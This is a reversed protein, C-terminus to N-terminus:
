KHLRLAESLPPTAGRCSAVYSGVRNAFDATKELSYGNLHCHAVAASFADGCGVTDVVQVPYGPHEVVGETGVVLCGDKGLTVCVLKLRFELLISRCWDVRDGKGLGAQKLKQQEEDNLKAITSLKLQEAVLEQSWFDHRLNIDFLITNKASQLLSEVTKRSKEARQILTGFCVLDASAVAQHLRPEEELYDWAVDEVVTFSPTGDPAVQVPVTGTPKETDVQILGTALGNARLHKLLERGLLDDGVRSVVAAAHGLQGAHFAFNAPAGGPRRGDEFLDWLLEGLGLLNSSAKKKM